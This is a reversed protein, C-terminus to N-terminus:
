AGSKKDSRIKAVVDALDTDHVLARQQASPQLAKTPQAAVDHRWVVRDTRDAMAFAVSAINAEADDLSYVVVLNTCADRDPFLLGQGFFIDSQKTHIRSIRGDAGLKKFRVIVKGGIEFLMTGDKEFAAVNPDSRTLRHFEYVAHTWILNARLSKNWAAPVSAAQASLAHKLASELAKRAPPGYPLLVAGVAIDLDPIM